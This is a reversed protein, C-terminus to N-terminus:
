SKISIIGLMIKDLGKSISELNIKLWLVFNQSFLVLMPNINSCSFGLLVLVIMLSHCLGDHGLFM